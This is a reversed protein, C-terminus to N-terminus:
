AADSTSSREKFQALWADLSAREYIVKRGAKRYVPARVGALKGTYRSNRLTAEHFGLYTAADSSSLRDTTM